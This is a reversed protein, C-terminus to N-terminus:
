VTRPCNVVAVRQNEALEAISARCDVRIAELHLRKSLAISKAKKPEQPVMKMSAILPFTLQM